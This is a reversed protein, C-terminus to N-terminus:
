VEAVAAPKPTVEVAGQSAAYMEVSNWVAQPLGRSTLVEPISWLLGFLIWPTALLSLLGMMLGHSALEPTIWQQNGVTVVVGPGNGSANADAAVITLPPVGDSDGYQIQVLYSAGQGIKQVKHDEKVRFQAVLFDALGEPAINGRFIRQDM